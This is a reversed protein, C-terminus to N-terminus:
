ICVNNNIVFLLLVSQHGEPIMLIPGKKKNLYTFIATSLGWHKKYHSVYLDM